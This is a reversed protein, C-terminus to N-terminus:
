GKKEVQGCAVQGVEHAGRLEPYQVLMREIVDKSMGQHM